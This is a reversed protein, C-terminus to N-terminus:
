ITEWIVYVCSKNKLAYHELKWVTHKPYVFHLALAPYVGLSAIKNQAFLSLKDHQSVIDHQTVIDYTMISM